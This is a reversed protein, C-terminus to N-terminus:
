MRLSRNLRSELRILNNSSHATPTQVICAAKLMYRIMWQVNREAITRSDETKTTNVNSGKTAPDHVCPRPASIMRAGLWILASCGKLQRSTPTGTCTRRAELAHATRRKREAEGEERKREGKGERLKESRSPDLSCAVDAEADEYDDFCSEGDEIEGQILEKM